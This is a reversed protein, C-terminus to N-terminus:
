RCDYKKVASDCYLYAHRVASCGRSNFTIDFCIWFLSFLFLYFTYIQKLFRVLYNLQREKLTSGSWSSSTTNHLHRQNEVLSKSSRDDEDNDNDDQYSWRHSSFDGITSGLSPELMEQNHNVKKSLPYKSLTRNSTKQTTKTNTGNKPIKSNCQM